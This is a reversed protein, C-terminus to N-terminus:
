VSNWRSSGTGDGGASVGEFASRLQALGLGIVPGVPKGRNTAVTEGDGRDLVLGNVTEVM